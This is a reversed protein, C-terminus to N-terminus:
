GAEADKEDELDPFPLVRQYGQIQQRAILVLSNAIRANSHSRQVYSDVTSDISVADQEFLMKQLPRYERKEIPNGADDLDGTPVLISPFAPVNRHGPFRSTRLISKILELVAFRTLEDQFEGLRGDNALVYDAMEPSGGGPCGQMIDRVLGRLRDERPASM